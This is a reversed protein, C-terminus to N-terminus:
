RREALACRGHDHRTGTGDVITSTTSPINFGITIPDGGARTVFAEMGAAPISTKAFALGLLEGEPTAFWAGQPEIRGPPPASPADTLTVMGDCVLGTPSSDPLFQACYSTWPSANPRAPFTEPRVRVAGTTVGTPPAAMQVKIRPSSASARAAITM